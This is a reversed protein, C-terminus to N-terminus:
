FHGIRLFHELDDCWKKKAWEPFDIYGNVQNQFSVKWLIKWQEIDHKTITGNRACTKFSLLAPFKGFPFTRKKGCINEPLLQHRPMTDYVRITWLLSCNPLITFHEHENWEAHLLTVIVIIWSFPSFTKKLHVQSDYFMRVPSFHGQFYKHM